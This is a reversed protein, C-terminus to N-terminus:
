PLPVASNVRVSGSYPPQGGSPCTLTFDASFQAATGDPAPVAEQITLQWSTSASCQGLSWISFPNGGPTNSSTYTGPVISGVGPQFQLEDFLGSGSPGNFIFRFINYTTDFVTTVTGNASGELTAGDPEQGVSPVQLAHYYLFPQMLDTMVFVTVSASDTEGNADTITLSFDLTNGSQSSAPVVFSATATNGGSLVVAAGGTQVWSYGAITSNTSLSGTSLLQVTQGPSAVGPSPAANAELNNLTTLQLSVYPGAGSTAWTTAVRNVSNLTYPEGHQLQSQATLALIPGNAAVVAPVAVQGPIAYSATNFIFAATSPTVPGNFFMRIPTDVDTGTSLIQNIPDAQQPETFMLAMQWMGLQTTSYSPRGNSIVISYGRPEWWPFGNIGQEWFLGPSDVFKGSGSQDLSAVVNENYSVNQAAYNLVSPGGRFVEMGTDPYVGLRGSLATPTSVAFQGQLLQSQYDAAIQVSYRPLTYDIVKSLSANSVLVTDTPFFGGSQQYSLTIPSSGVTSQVTYATDAATYEASLSGNVTLGSLQFTDLAATAAFSLGAQPPSIPAVLTLSVTGSVHDAMSQSFCGALTITIVDGPTLSRSGDNDKFAYTASGGTVEHYPDSCTETVSSALHSSLYTLREGMFSAFQMLTESATNGVATVSEVNDPTIVTACAVAINTIDASGIVGSGNSVTCTQIPQTPQSTIAISYSTGSAVPAAFTFSGNASVAINTGDQNQLMLGTGALGAVSGGLRYSNTTCKVSISTVNASVTGSGSSVTCNQAPNLPQTAVTVSYNTGATVQAPFTFVGNATVSLKTGANQLQLGAGSLGSVSGGLSYLQPAGSGGGGCAELAIALAAIAVLRFSRVFEPSRLRTCRGFCRRSRLATVGQTRRM